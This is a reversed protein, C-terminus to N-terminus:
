EKLRKKLEKVIAISYKNAKKGNAVYDSVAEAITEERNKLAYGSIHTVLNGHKEGLSEAAKNTIDYDSKVHNKNFKFVFDDVDKYDVDIKRVIFDTMVHALEHSLSSMNNTGQPHFSTLVGAYWQKKLTENYLERDFIKPTLYVIGMGQEYSGGASDLADIRDAMMITVQRQKLEPFIEIFKDLEKEIATRQEQSLNQMTTTNDDFDYDPIVGYKEKMKKRWSLFEETATSYTFQPGVLEFLDEGYPSSSEEKVSKGVSGM